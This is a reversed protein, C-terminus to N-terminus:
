ASHVSVLNASATSTWDMHVTFRGTFKLSREERKEIFQSDQSHVKIM